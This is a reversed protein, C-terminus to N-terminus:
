RAGRQRLVNTFTKILLMFDLMLSRKEIYRIDWRLWEDFDEGGRGFVQWLGTIGPLVDLRETHWLKYSESSWSTPRPGVLSMDGLIVNILQPLEDLSTKRLVRGLPTVRPDDKLKLPGALDGSANVKALDKKLQEANKVMSRFKYMRFRKGGKGTRLQVFFVPTSSTVVVALSVILMIPVWLPSSLLVISLDMIRKAIYYARGTMIRKKPNFKKVWDEAYTSHLEMTSM